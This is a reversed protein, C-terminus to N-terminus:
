RTLPLDDDHKCAAGAVLFDCLREIERFGGDLNVHLANKALEIYGLAHLGGDICDFVAKDPLFGHLNVMQLWNVDMLGHFYTQGLCPRAAYNRGNLHLLLCSWNRKMLPVESAKANTQQYHHMIPKMRM